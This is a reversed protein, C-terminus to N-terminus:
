EEAISKWRRILASLGWMSLIVIPINIWFICMVEQEEFRYNNMDSLRLYAVFILYALPILCPLLWLMVNLYINSYGKHSKSKIKIIIKSLLAVFLIIWFSGVLIIIIEEYERDLSKVLGVALLIVIFILIGTSVLAILWSKGSTIRFSFVFTAMILSICFCILIFIEIESRDVYSYIVQQYGSSLEEYQLYPLSGASFNDSELALISLSHAMSDATVAIDPEAVAAVEEIYSNNYDNFSSPQYNSIMTSKKVPFFPPNYIRKFWNEPTINVPMNHKQQLQEFDKMLALIKDKDGAQLWKKVQEASRVKNWDSTDIYGRDKAERNNYQYFNYYEYNSYFLLSPGTYGRIILNGSGSYQVSYDDLNLAHADVITGEPIPIPNNYESNYNYESKSEPILINVKNLIDMAKQAEKLSVVSQWKSVYGNSLSYPVFSIGISIIFIMIWELFLQNTKKPYITKFGNNRSYFVLWGILLLISILISIFYLIGFDGWPLNYYYYEDFVVDTAFYGISFFVLHVGLLILLMPILRINWVTPFHLLLYKQIKKIM